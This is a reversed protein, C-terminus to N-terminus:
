LLLHHIIELRTTRGTCRSLAMVEISIGRCEDLIVQGEEPTLPMAFLFAKFREKGKRGALNFTESFERGVLENGDVCKWKVQVREPCVLRIGRVVVTHQHELFLPLQVGTTAWDAPVRLIKEM